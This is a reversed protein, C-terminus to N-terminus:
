IESHTHIRYFSIQCYGECMVRIKEGYVSDGQENIYTTLFHRFESKIAQRPGEM